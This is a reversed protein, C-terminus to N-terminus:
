KLLARMFKLEERFAADEPYAEVAMEAILLAHEAAKARRASWALAFWDQKTNVEDRWILLLQRYSALDTFRAVMGLQNLASGRLGTDGLAAVRRFRARVSDHDRTLLAVLLRVAYRSEDFVLSQLGLRDTAEYASEFERALNVVDHVDITEAEERFLYAIAGGWFLPSTKIWPLDREVQEPGVQRDTHEHDKRTAHASAALRARLAPWGNKARYWNGITAYHSLVEAPEHIDHFAIRHLWRELPPVLMALRPHREIEEVGQEHFFGSVVSVYGQLFLRIQRIKEDQEWRNRDFRPSGLLRDLAGVHGDYHAAVERALEVSLDREDSEYLLTSATSLAVPYWDEGLASKAKPLDDNILSAALELAAGDKEQELLNGLLGLRLSFTPDDSIELIKRIYKAAVDWQAMASALGALEHINAPDQDTEVMKEMKVVGRRYTSFHWDRQVDIMTKAYDRDTFIRHGLGWNSRLNEGSFRVAIQCQSPDFSGGAGFSTYAAKLSLPVTAAVFELPPGTQLLYTHWQGDGDREVWGLANHAPLNMIHPLKGQRTLIAHYVEALDDCDGRCVGGLSTSLTQAITQHIEGRADVTGILLPRGPDPSDNVYKFALEGILDLHAADKLTSAAEAVFREIEEPTGNRPPVVSGHATHISLVHGHLSIAHVHPPLCNTVLGPHAPIAARWRASDAHFGKERSWTAIPKRDHHVTARAIPPAAAMPDGGPVLAALLTLTTTHDFYEPSPLDRVYRSRLPTVMTWGMEHFTHELQRIDIGDGRLRRISSARTLLTIRSVVEASEKTNGVTKALWGNLVAHRAFEPTVIDEEAATYSCAADLVKAIAKRALTGFGRAELSGVLRAVADRAADIDDTGAPEEPDVARAVGEPLVWLDDSALHAGALLSVELRLGELPVRAEAAVELLAGLNALEECEDYELLDSHVTIPGAPTRVVPDGEASLRLVQWAVEASARLKLTGDEIVAADSEPLKRKLTAPDQQGSVVLALLFFAFLSRAYLSRMRSREDDLDRGSRAPVSMM